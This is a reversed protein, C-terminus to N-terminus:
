GARDLDRSSLARADNIFPRQIPGSPTKGTAAQSPKGLAEDIRETLMDVFRDPIFGIMRSIVDGKKGFIITTPIDSVQLLRALGDEFYIKQSWNQSEMFPKVVSKDEDTDVALFVM